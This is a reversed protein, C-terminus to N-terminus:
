PQPQQVPAQAQPPQPSPSRSRSGSGRAFLEKGFAKLKKPDGQVVLDSVASALAKKGLKPSPSPKNGEEPEKQPLPLLPNKLDKEEEFTFVPNDM